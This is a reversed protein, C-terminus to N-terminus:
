HPTGQTNTPPVASPTSTALPHPYAFPTYYLTWTNTATCVFLQGQPGSGSQNWNGQDTAWYGVAPTCTAPRASLPGQGIGATGNFTASPEDVNPLQLYYDRNEAISVPAFNSWFHVPSNPPPNFTNSFVYVPDLVQNPWSVKGTASNLKNPFNGTLLDGQGRGISDICAYGTGNSNQDWNSPGRTTGCFGWGVPPATQTYTANNTRVVDANILAVYATTTNGWFIGGGGEYQILVNGQDTAPANSYKLVNGYAELTRCSRGDIGSGTGHTVWLEHYGINNFRLVFRGGAGCDFTFVHQSATAPVTQFNNNEAFMFQSTGFNSPITWSANGFGSPDCGQAGFRVQNENNFTGDFQNHDVVGQTCGDFNLDVVNIKNFHNHDIRVATSSGAIRVSANFTVSTNSASYTFAFGTLRFSKGAATTVGLLPFDGLTNRNINDQIITNDTGAGNISSASYSIAGAGQLTFSKTQVYQIPTTWTCNGAPVVVTTGDTTIAALAAAVDTQNCSAANITQAHSASAGLGALFLFVLWRAIRTM